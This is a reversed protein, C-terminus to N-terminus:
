DYISHDGIAHLVFVAKDEITFIVRIKHDISFSWHGRLKGDLKHTKLLPDFPENKFRKLRDEVLKRMSIPLRKADRKFHPTYLVEAM